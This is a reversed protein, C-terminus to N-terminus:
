YKILPDKCHKLILQNEPSTSQMLEEIQKYDYLKVLADAANKRIDFDTSYLFEQKIFDTSKGTAMLGLAKLIEIQCIVPQNNYLHILQPESEIYRLQGLCRIADVRLLHNKRQLVKMVAEGAEYQEFYAILKLCFSVISVNNSYTVWRAFNPIAIKPSTTITSFLEIQDWKLLPETTVDFFKFPENKSLKVYANRAKARLEPRKSNTLPLILADNIPIDMRELEDIGKVKKEWSYHKIKKLSVKDLNLEIYLKRLLYGIDGTFERRYDILRDIFFQQNRNHNLIQKQFPIIDMEVKEVPIYESFSSPDNLLVNELILQDIKPFLHNIRNQKLHGKIRTLIIRLQIYIILIISFIISIISIKVVLPLDGFHSILMEPSYADKTYSTFISTIM